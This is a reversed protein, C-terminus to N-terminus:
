NSTLNFRYTAGSPPRFADLPGALAWKVKDELPSFSGLVRSRCWNKIFTAKLKAAQDPHKRSKVQMKQWALRGYDIIGLWIKQFLKAVPWVIGNFVLDNRCLWITWMTVGRLSTTKRKVLHFAFEM